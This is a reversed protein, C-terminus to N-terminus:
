RTMIRAYRYTICMLFIMFFGYYNKHAILVIGLVLLVPTLLGLLCVLMRESYSKSASPEQVGKIAPIRVYSTLFELFKLVNEKM